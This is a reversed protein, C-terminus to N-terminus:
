AGGGFRDLVNRTVREVLADGEILGAVWNCSAANLVEGAGRRYHAIMGSGRSVRDLTEPSADGHLALAAAEADKRGIFPDPDTSTGDRRITVRYSPCTTSVHLELVEGPGYGPRGTYAWIQPEQGDNTQAEYYHHRVPDGGLGDPAHIFGRLREAM